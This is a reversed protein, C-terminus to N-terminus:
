SRTRIRARVMAFAEDLPVGPDAAEDDEDLLQRLIEEPVGVAEHLFSKLAVTAVESPSSFEGAAVREDIRRAEEDTVTITIEREM